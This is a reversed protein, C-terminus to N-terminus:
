VHRNELEILTTLIRCYEQCEYIEQIEDTNYTDMERANKFYFLATKFDSIAEAITVHDRGPIKGQYNNEVWAKVDGFNRIPIPPSVTVAIRKWEQSGFLSVCNEDTYAAQHAELYEVAIELDDIIGDLMISAATVDWTREPIHIDNQQM